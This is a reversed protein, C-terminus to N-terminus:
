PQQPTGERRDPVYRGGDVAAAVMGVLQATTGWRAKVVDAGAVLNAITTVGDGGVKALNRISRALEFLVPGRSAPVLGPEGGNAIMVVRDIALERDVVARADEQPGVPVHDAVVDLVDDPMDLTRSVPIVHGSARDLAISMHAPLALDVSIRIRRGASSVDPVMLAPILVTRGQGRIVSAELYVADDRIPFTLSEIESVFSRAIAM